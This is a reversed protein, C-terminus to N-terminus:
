ASLWITAVLLSDAPHAMTGIRELISSLRYLLSLPLLHPPLPLLGPARFCFHPPNPTAKTPRSTSARPSRSAAARSPRRGPSWPYHIHDSVAKTHQASLARPPPSAAARSPRRGPSWSYTHDSAAKM